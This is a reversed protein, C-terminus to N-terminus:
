EEQGVGWGMLSPYIVVAKGTEKAARCAIKIQRNTPGAVNAIVEDMSPGVAKDNVSYITAYRFKLGDIWKGYHVSIKYM